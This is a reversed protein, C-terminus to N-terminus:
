RGSKKLKEVEKEVAKREWETQQTFVFVGLFHFLIGIGWGGLPFVFWPFGDGTAAWIIVLFINVCIYVALHMFFGKKEEVRKRAERYLEEESM